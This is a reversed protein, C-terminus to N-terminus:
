RRRSRSGRRSRRARRDETRGHGEVPAAVTMADPHRLVAGPSSGEGALIRGRDEGVVVASRREPGDRGGSADPDPDQVAEARRRPHRHDDVAAAGRPRDITHGRRERRVGDQADDRLGDSRRRCPPDLHLRGGARDQVRARLRRREDDTARRARGTELDPRLGARVVLVAAEEPDLRGRGRCERRDDVVQRELGVQAADDRGLHRRGPRRARELRLGDRRARVGGTVQARADGVVVDDVGRGGLDVAARPTLLCRRVRDDPRGRADDQAAALRDGVREVVRSAAPRGLVVLVDVRRRGSRLDRADDAIEAARAVSRGVPTGVVATGRVRRPGRTGVGHRPQRRPEGGVRPRVDPGSVASSRRLTPTEPRSM